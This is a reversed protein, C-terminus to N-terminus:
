GTNFETNIEEFLLVAAVCRDHLVAPSPTPAYSTRGRLDCEALSATSQKQREGSPTSDWNETPAFPGGSHVSFFKGAPFLQKRNSNEATAVQRIM